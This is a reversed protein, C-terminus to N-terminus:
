KKAWDAGPTYTGKRLHLLCLANMVPKTTSTVDEDYLWYYRSDLLKEWSYGQEVLDKYLEAPSCMIEKHTGALDTLLLEVTIELAQVLLLNSESLSHITTRMLQVDPLLEMAFRTAGKEGTLGYRKYMLLLEYQSLGQKIGGGNEYVIPFRFGEGLGNKGRGNTIMLKRQGQYGDQYVIGSEPYLPQKTGPNFLYELSQVYWINVILQAAAQGGGKLKEGSRLVALQKGDKVFKGMKLEQVVHQATLFNVDYRATLVPIQRILSAQSKGRNMDHTNTESDGVNAKEYAAILNEDEFYSISDLVVNMHRRQKILNGSADPFPTTVFKEGGNKPLGCRYKAYERAGDFWAGGDTTKDTHFVLPEYEDFLIQGAYEPLRIVDDQLREPFLTTESDYWMCRPCYRMMYINNTRILLETKGYGPAALFSTSSLLGGNIYWTGDLAQKWNGAALDFPAFINGFVKAPAKPVYDYPTM